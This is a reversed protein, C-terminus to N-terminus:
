EELTRLIKITRWLYLLAILALINGPILLLTYLISPAGPAATTLIYSLLSTLLATVLTILFLQRWKQSLTPDEEAVLDAHATFLYYNSIWNTALAALSVLQFILPIEPTVGSSRFLYLVWASAVMNFLRCLLQVARFMGAKGYRTNAPTLLILCFVTGVMLLINIWSIWSDNKLLSDLVSLALGAAQIHFLIRLLQVPDKMSPKHM